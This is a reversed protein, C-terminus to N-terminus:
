FDKDHNSGLSKNLDFYANIPQKFPHILKLSDIDLRSINSGRFINKVVKCLPVRLFVGMVIFLTKCFYGRARAARV